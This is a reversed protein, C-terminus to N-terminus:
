TALIAVLRVWKGCGTDGGIGRLRPLLGGTSM